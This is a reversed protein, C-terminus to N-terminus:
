LNSECGWLCRRWLFSFFACSLSAVILSRGNIAAKFGDLMGTDFVTCPLYNWMQVQAPLFCRAFQIREEGHYITCVRLFFIIECNYIQYCRIYKKKYINIGM